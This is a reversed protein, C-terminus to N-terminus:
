ISTSAHPKIFPVAISLFAAMYLGSQQSDLTWGTSAHCFYTLDTIIIIIIIINCYDQIQTYAPQISNDNSETAAKEVVLILTKEGYIYAIRDIGM